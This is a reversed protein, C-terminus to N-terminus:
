RIVEACKSGLILHAGTKINRVHHLERIDARGCACEEGDIGDKLSEVGDPFWEDKAEHWNDADSHMLLITIIKSPRYFNDSPEIETYDCDDNTDGPTMVIPQDFASIIAM